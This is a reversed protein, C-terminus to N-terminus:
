TVRSIRPECGPYYKMERHASCRTSSSRRKASWSASEVSTMDHSSTLDETLSWSFLHGKQDGDSTRSAM